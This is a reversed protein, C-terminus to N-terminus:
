KYEIKQLWQEMIKLQPTPELERSRKICLESIKKYYNQDTKLKRITEVWGKIDTYSVYIGCYDLAERLGETPNAIVPIGSSIAEIAVRGWTEQQSPMLIIDTQEYISEINPTSPLYTINKITKDKIQSNYAGEVGLFEIDPMLKAIEILIRGGKNANCNILTVYKRNTEVQYDKWYVPPFVVCNDFGMPTYLKKIWFSNYILHINEKSYIKKFVELYPKQIEDHVIIIIPKKAIDATKVAMLSFHFHTGIFKSKQIVNQIQKRDNFTYINVGEYHKIPFTPVIVNVTYGEKILYINIAHIMWEGGANLIPVYNHIIWTISKDNVKRSEDQKYDYPIIPENLIINNYKLVFSTTVLIGIILLLIFLSKYKFIM